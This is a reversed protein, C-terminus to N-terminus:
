SRGGKYRGHNNMEFRRALNLFDSRTYPRGNHNCLMEGMYLDVLIRLETPDLEKVFELKEMDEVTIM